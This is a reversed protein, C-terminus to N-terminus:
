LHEVEEILAPLAALPIRPQQRDNPSSSLVTLAATSVREAIAARHADVATSLGHRYWLRHQLAARLQRLAPAPIERGRGRQTRLEEAMAAMERPLPNPPAVTLRNAGQEPEIDRLLVAVIATAGGVLAVVLLAQLVLHAVAPRAVAVLLGGIAVLLVTRLTRQLQRM